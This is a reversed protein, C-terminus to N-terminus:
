KRCPRLRARIHSRHSTRSHNLDCFQANEGPSFGMMTPPLTRAPKFVRKGPSFDPAPVTEYHQLQSPAANATCKKQYMNRQNLVTAPTSQHRLIKRAFKATYPYIQMREPKGAAVAQTLRRPAECRCSPLTCTNSTNKQRPNERQKRRRVHNRLQM